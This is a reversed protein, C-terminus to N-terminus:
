LLIRKDLMNKIIHYNIKMIHFITSTNDRHRIWINGCQPIIIKSYPMKKKVLFDAAQM